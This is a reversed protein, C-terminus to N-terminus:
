DFGEGWSAPVATSRMAASRPSATPAAIVAPQEDDPAARARLHSRAASVIRRSPCISARSSATLSRASSSWSIWIARRPRWPRPVAPAARAPARTSPSGLDRPALLPQVVALRVDLLELLLQLDRAVPRDLLQLPRPAARDGLRLLVQEFARLVDDPVLQRAGGALELLLGADLRLPARPVEDGVGQLPDRCAM